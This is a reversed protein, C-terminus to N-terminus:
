IAPVYRINKLYLPLLRTNLQKETFLQIGNIALAQLSCADASPEQIYANSGFIADIQQRFLPVGNGIFRIKNTSFEEKLRELLQNGNECGMQFTDHQQIAYYLDNNFANLLAITIPWSSNTHEQLFAHFGNVGILPIRSAFGLGNATTIIVRLSTFPAPGQNVIIGALDAIAREQQAFMNQIVPILDRSAYKKDDAYYRLLNQGSFLGVEYQVYHAQLVLFNTM